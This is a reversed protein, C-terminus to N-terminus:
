DRAGGPRGRRWRLVGGEGRLMVTGPMVRLAHPKLRLIGFAEADPSTWQPIISPDYGVPPPGETFRRWGAERDDDWAAECDATATDHEPSWYTLSLWPTAALDAAKPSLPSTAIWGTLDTGDWEWIPHLIRSRPRGHPTVTAATCWVIRHAMEVFAPAIEALPTTVPRVTGQATIAGCSFWVM